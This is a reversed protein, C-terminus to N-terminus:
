ASCKDVGRAPTEAPEIGPRRKQESNSGEGTGIERRVRLPMSVLFFGGAGNTVDLRLPGAVTPTFEFDYTEGNGIQQVAPRVTTQDPPPSMGDKAIAALRELPTSAAMVKVLM